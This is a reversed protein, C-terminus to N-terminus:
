PPARNAPSAPRRVPGFLHGIGLRRANGIAAQLLRTSLGSGRYDPAILAELLSIAPIGGAGADSFATEIVGDWGRDPLDENSGTWRFPVSNIRAVVKGDAAVGLIQYEPFTDALRPYYLDALPEHLMFEPWTSDVAWMAARLEPKEALNVFTLDV